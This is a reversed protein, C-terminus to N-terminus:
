GIVVLTFWKGGNEDYEIEYEENEDNDNDDIKEGSNENMEDNDKYFM